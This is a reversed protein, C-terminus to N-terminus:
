KIPAAGAHWESLVQRFELESKKVYRQLEMLDVFADNRGQKIAAIKQDRRFFGPHPADCPMRRLKEFTREYDSVIKPYELNHVLRKGCM